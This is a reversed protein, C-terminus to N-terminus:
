CGIYKRYHEIYRERNIDKFHQENWNREVSYRINACVCLFYHMSNYNLASLRSHFSFTLLRADYFANM